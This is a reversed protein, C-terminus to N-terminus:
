KPADINFDYRFSADHVRAHQEAQYNYYDRRCVPCYVLVPNDHVPAPQIVPIAYIPQNVIRPPQVQLPVLPASMTPIVRSRSIIRPQSALSTDLVARSPSLYFTEDATHGTRFLKTSDM